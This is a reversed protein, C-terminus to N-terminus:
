SLSRKFRSIAILVLVVAYIVMAVLETWLAEVGAGKLFLGR